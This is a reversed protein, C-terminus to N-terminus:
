PRFALSQASLADAAMRTARGAGATCNAATAHETHLVVGGSLFPTAPAVPAGGCQAPPPQCCRQQPPSCWREWMGCCGNSSLMGMAMVMGLLKKARM